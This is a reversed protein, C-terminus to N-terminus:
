RFDLYCKCNARCSCQQGPYVISDIGIWGQSSLEICEPCHNHNAGLFRMAESFGLEKRKQVQIYNKTLAASSAFMRLRNNLQAESVNGKSIDKILEILGYRDGTLPDIAGKIQEKLRDGLIALQEKSLEDARGNAANVASYIHLEKIKQAAKITFVDLDIKKTALDSSLKTLEETKRTFGEDLLGKVTKQSLFKGTSKDAFRRANQNWTYSLTREIERDLQFALTPTITM